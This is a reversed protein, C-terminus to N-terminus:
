GRVAWRLLEAVRPPQGQMLIAVRFIRSAGWTVAYICGEPIALSLDNVATVDGYTKTVHTIQVADM